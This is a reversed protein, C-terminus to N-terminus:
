RVVVVCEFWYDRFLDHFEMVIFVVVRVYGACVCRELFEVVSAFALGLYVDPGNQSVVAEVVAAM